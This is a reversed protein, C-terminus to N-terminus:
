EYLNAIEDKFHENVIKRKIKLTPTLEDEDQSLERPLLIYKKIKEYRPLDSMIKELEEDFLTKIEINDILEKNNNYSIKKEDSYLKLQEFDPAILASMFKRDNGIMVVQSIYKSSKLLNEIPQPAVNKGNSMVIIEKKRDTITLFGDEDINGIDGTHLWIEGEIEELTEKTAVDNKWYGKMINDGKALIEGDNAIKIEVGPIPLGVTGFKYKELRNCTIVPSSETLGYGELILIDLAAFFDGLHKALPAGGSVFFRLRNGTKEKIKSFVLKNALFFQIDLIVGTTGKKKAEIYQKGVELAWQFIKQKLSSDEEIKQLVGAYMKEYLRPVSIMLTPRTEPMNDRVTDISVAYNITGGVFIMGYYGAMRELVHSLPLFSLVSDSNRIPIVDLTNWVNSSFNKHTLMVGKPLGTTGSTYVLSCLDDPKLKNLNEDLKKEYNETEKKGLEILEKMTMVWDLKKDSPVTDMVIAHNLTKVKDKIKIIKDLQEENQLFIAKTDSNNLIYSVQVSTLTDYNPVNIAGMWLIAQDAIVWEPRNKSLISVRDQFDVGLSFLGIATFFAREKFDEYTIDRYVGEVKYRLAVKNPHQTVSNHFIKPIIYEAM